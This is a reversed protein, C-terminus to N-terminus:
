AKGEIFACVINAMGTMQIELIFMAWMGIPVQWM